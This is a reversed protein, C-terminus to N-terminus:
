IWDLNVHQSTYKQGFTERLARYDPRLEKFKNEHTEAVTCRIDAFLGATDMATLLNLEAGEIDMKVLSVPGKAVILDRLFAVFDIVEVDIGDDESIGRGGALLTSKVSGGKPNDDFNEARMLRLTGAATSVAKQHLTVNAADAFRQSLQAFAYPDPEFAIVHAGTAALPATVEGLNAGCDIVVDGPKLLALVGDLFGHARAHRLNRKERRKLKALRNELEEIRAANETESAQADADVSM